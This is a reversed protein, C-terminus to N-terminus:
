HMLSQTALQVPVEFRKQVSIFAFPLPQPKWSLPIQRRYIQEKSTLCLLKVIYLFSRTQCQEIKIPRQHLKFINPWTKTNLNRYTKLVAQYLLHFFHRYNSMMERTFAVCCAQDAHLVKLHESSGHVVFSKFDTPFHWYFFGAKLNLLSFSSGFLNM